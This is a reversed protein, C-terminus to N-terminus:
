HYNKFKKHDKQLNSSFCVGEKFVSEYLKTYFELSKKSSGTAGQSFQPGHVGCYPGRCDFKILGVSKYHINDSILYKSYFFFFSVSFPLQPM